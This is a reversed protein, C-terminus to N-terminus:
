SNNGPCNRPFKVWVNDGETNIAVCLEFSTQYMPTPGGTINRFGGVKDCRYLLEADINGDIIVSIYGQDPFIYAIGTNYDNPILLLGLLLLYKM